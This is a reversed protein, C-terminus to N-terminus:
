FRVNAARQVFTRKPSLATTQSRDEPEGLASGVGIATIRVFGVNLCSVRIFLKTNNM